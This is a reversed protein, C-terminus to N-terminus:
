EIIKAIGFKAITDPTFKDKLFSNHKLNLVMKIKQDKDLLIGLLAGSNSFQPSSTIITIRKTKCKSLIYLKNNSQDLTASDFVVLISNDAISGLANGIDTSKEVIYVHPKIKNQAAARAINDKNKQFYEQSSFIAVESCTPFFQKTTYLVQMPTVEKARGIGSLCIVMLVVMPMVRKVM